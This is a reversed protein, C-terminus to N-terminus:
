AVPARHRPHRGRATRSCADDRRYFLPEIFPKHLTTRPTMLHKSDPSRAGVNAANSAPHDFAVVCAPFPWDAQFRRLGARSDRSGPPGGGARDRRPSRAPCPPVPTRPRFTAPWPLGRLAALGRCHAATCTRAERLRPVLERPPALFWHTEISWRWSALLAAKWGCPSSAARRCKGPTRQRARCPGPDFRRLADPVPAEQQAGPASRCM